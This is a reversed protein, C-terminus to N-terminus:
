EVIVALKESHLSFAVRNFYGPIEGDTHVCMPLRCCIEARKCRIIRIGRDVAITFHIGHFLFIIKDSIKKQTLVLRVPFEIPNTKM